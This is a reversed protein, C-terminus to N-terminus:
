GVARQRQSELGVMTVANGVLPDRERAYVGVTAPDRHRTQRMVPGQGSPKPLSAPGRPIPSSASARRCVNGDQEELGPGDAGASLVVTGLTVTPATGPRWCGRGARRSARGQLHGAVVAGEAEPDTKPSRVVLHLGTVQPGPRAHPRRDTTSSM